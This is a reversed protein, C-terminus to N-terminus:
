CHAILVHVAQVSQHIVARLGAAQPRKDQPVEPLVRRLIVALRLSDGTLPPSSRVARMQPLLRRRLLDAADPFDFGRCAAIQELLQPLHPHCQRLQVM